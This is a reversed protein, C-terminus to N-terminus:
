EHGIANGEDEENVEENNIKRTTKQMETDEVRTLIVVCPTIAFGLGVGGQSLFNLNGFKWDHIRSCYETKESCVQIPCPM